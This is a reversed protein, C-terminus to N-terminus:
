RALAEAWRAMQEETWDYNRATNELFNKYENLLSNMAVYEKDIALMHQTMLSPVQGSFNKGMNRFINTVQNQSEFIKSATQGIKDAKALMEDTVIQMKPM